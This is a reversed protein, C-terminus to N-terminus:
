HIGGALEAILLEEVELALVLGQPVLPHVPLQDHSRCALSGMLKDGRAQAMFKEPQAVISPM